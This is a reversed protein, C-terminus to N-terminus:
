AQTPEEEEQIRQQAKHCNMKMTSKVPNLNVETVWGLTPPPLHESLPQSLPCWKGQTVGEKAPTRSQIFCSLPVLSSPLLMWRDDTSSICGSEECATAVHLSHEGRGEGRARRQGGWRGLDGEDPTKGCCHSFYSGCGRGIKKWKECRRAVGWKEEEWSAKRELDRPQSELKTLFYFWWQRWQM